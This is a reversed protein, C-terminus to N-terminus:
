GDLVRRLFAGMLEYEAVRHEPQRFGHGEGPFVHLEVDGGGARVREALRVSQDVPVVPDADGHLVLLPVDIRDAYELPSRERYREAATLPGVLTLTYHAEFRHSRAALDALDTVPYSVAGGAALGAHRGLVGLATLGGSSGGVLITRGPSADGRDHADRLIAATDDVDLQGWGGHLAQQYARGHGTSGRPDPVLVDFGQSWWYAVRPMFEVQWQDTPGGHVWCLTRGRGAVYRRAHLVVGDHAVEVLAPEPLEVRDWATVPGVAISRRRWPAGTPVKTDYAVIQTPTRAGTRLATLHTGSWALQGHVGRGVEHVAGSALDAVCLRGFGAENRTFAVSRHDPAVAYSRQGMGWSPGAHEFPEDVVPADDRWVNLWGHADRVSWLAGDTDIRPQQIAGDGRHVRVAGGPRLPADVVYAGDWPMDPVGWAQWVVRAGDAAGADVFPDACFDADGADLRRPDGAGDLAVVWIEAHDVAYVVCSGDSAVHPAQARRDPGHQTLRLADGPGLPVRWLEGDAGVLVVGSGDALWDFCGGGLGRAPAPPPAGATGVLREPGGTVPVTVLATEAGLRAVFAVITSDPSPRPETLDRGSVCMAISVHRRVRAVTPM